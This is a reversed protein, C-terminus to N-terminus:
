WKLFNQTTIIINWLIVSKVTNKVLYILDQPAYSVEKKLSKQITNQIASFYAYLPPRDDRQNLM